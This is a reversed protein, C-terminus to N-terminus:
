APIGRIFGSSIQITPTKQVPQFGLRSVALPPVQTYRFDSEAINATFDVSFRGHFRDHAAEPPRRFGGGSRLTPSCGVDCLIYQSSEGARTLRSHASPYEQARGTSRFLPRCGAAPDSIGARRAPM